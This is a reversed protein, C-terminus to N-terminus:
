FDGPDVSDDTDGFDGSDGSEGSGGSNHTELFDCSAHSDNYIIVPNLPFTLNVMMALIM